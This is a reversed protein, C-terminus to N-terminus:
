MNSNRLQNRTHNFFQDKGINANANNPHIASNFSQKDFLLPHTQESPRSIVKVNYLESNSAPVFVNQDARSQLAFTQNRLVTEVDVNQVYGSIPARSNGPNFNVSNNYLLYPIVPEHMPARRNIIPFISYKTPVPRPNFNPELPSDPFQRNKIRTNLEDVRENQGYFVGVPVGYIKNNNNMQDSQMM